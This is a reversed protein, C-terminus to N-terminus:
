KSLFDVTFRIESIVPNATSASIEFTFKKGKVNILQEKIDGKLEFDHIKNDAIIRINFNCNSNYEVSKILKDELSNFTIECSRWHADLAYDNEYDDEAFALFNNNKPNFTIVTNQKRSSLVTLGVIDYGNVINIEKTQLNLRIVNKVENEYYLFYENKCFTAKINVAKEMIKNIDNNIKVCDYGDFRYVGDEATYVIYGGAIVVTEEYIRSTSSYLKKVSFETQDLYATLRYIGYDSFIYVYNKFSLVRNVKGLNGDITIYGGEELSANWNTPDFSKCFWITNPKGEEVAFVKGFHECLDSLLLSKDMPNIVGSKRMLYLPGANMCILTVYEEGYRCRLLKKVGSTIYFVNWGSYDNPTKYYLTDDTCILLTPHLAGVHDIAFVDLFPSYNIGDLGSLNVIDGNTDYLDFPRLKLGKVLKNKDFGFNICDASYDCPLTNTTYDSNIGKFSSLLYKRRKPSPIKFKKENYMSGRLVVQQCNFKKIQGTQVCM